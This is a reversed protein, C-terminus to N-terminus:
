NQSRPPRPPLLPYLQLNRQKWWPLIVRRHPISVLTNVTHIPARMM